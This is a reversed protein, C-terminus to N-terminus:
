DSGGSFHSKTISKVFNPGRFICPSVYNLVEGLKQLFRSIMMCWTLFTAEIKQQWSFAKFHCLQAVHHPVNGQMPCDCCFLFVFCFFSSSLSLLAISSFQLDMSILVLLDRCNKKEFGGGGVLFSHEQGCFYCYWHNISNILPPKLPNLLPLILLEM